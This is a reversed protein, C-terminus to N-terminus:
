LSPEALPFVDVDDTALLFFLGTTVVLFATTTLALSEAVAARLFFAEFLFALTEVDAFSGEVAAEFAPLIAATSQGPHHVGLGALFVAETLLGPFGTLTTDLRVAAAAPFFLAATALFFVTVLPLVTAFVLAVVL